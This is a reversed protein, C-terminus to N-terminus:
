KALDTLPCSSRFRTSHNGVREINGATERLFITNKIGYLLDKKSWAQETLITKARKHIEVADRDMILYVWLFLVQGIYM